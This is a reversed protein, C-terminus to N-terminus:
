GRKTEIIMYTPVLITNMLWTGLLGIYFLATIITYDSLIANTMPTVMYWTFFIIAISFMAYLIATAYGFIPNDNQSPETIGWIMVGLPVVLYMLILVIITMFWSLGALTTGHETELTNILPPIIYQLIISAFYAIFFLGTGMLTKKINVM